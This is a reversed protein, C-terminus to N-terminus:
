RGGRSGGAPAGGSMGARMGGGLLGGGAAGSLGGYGGFAAGTGVGVGGSGLMGRGAAGGSTLFYGGNNLFYAPHGTVLPGAVQGVGTALLQQDAATQQLGSIAGYFNQQPLVLGYYNVATLGNGAFGGNNRLLNIYPSVVPQNSVGIGPRLVGQALASAQGGLLVCSSALLVTLTHRNM